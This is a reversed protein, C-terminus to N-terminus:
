PQPTADVLQRATDTAEQGLQDLEELLSRWQAVDPQVPPLLHPLLKLSFAGLIQGTVSSAFLPRLAESLRTPGHRELLRQWQSMSGAIGQGLAALQSAIDHRVTAPPAFPESLGALLVTKPVSSPPLILDEPRIVRTHNLKAGRDTVVWVLDPPWGALRQNLARWDGFVHTPVEPSFNGPVKPFSQQAEFGSNTYLTTDVASHHRQVPGEANLSLDMGFLCIPACGLFRALEIATAGCNECVSAGTKPTGLTALWDLTLQHSYAYYRQSLPIASSWEQPSIAALVVRAPAYQEPLCKAPLKAVDVSIAFDAQVGLNALAKLSSDAAFVVAGAAARALSPGSVELSPGAGCILAPVGALAGQWAEPLLRSTYDPLNRFIHRQWAFADQQRTNRIRRNSELAAGALDMAKEFRAAHAVPLDRSVYLSPLHKPTKAFFLELTQELEADTARDVPLMLLSKGPQEAPRGAMAAADVIWLVLRHSNFLAQLNLPDRGILVAADSGPVPHVFLLTNTQM